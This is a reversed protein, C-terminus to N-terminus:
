WIRFDMELNENRFTPKQRERSLEFVKNEIYKKFENVTLSSHNQLVEQIAFGFASNNGFRSSGTLGYEDAFSSAITMAGTGRRLEPFTEKMLRFVEMNDDFEGSHCANVIFLKQRAPIGDLLNELNDYKISKAAINSTDVDYSYLYYDNNKDMSGHGSYYIIVVDNVTVNRLWKKKVIRNRTVTENIFTDIYVHNYLEGEKTKYFDVFERIDNDTNPLTPINKYQSAGIGIIYLNPKADKQPEYVINITEKYSEAANENLCSVQIKNNGPLLAIELDTKYEKRKKDALDIGQAGFVPVSNVWVNLRNLNVKYDVASIKLEIEYNNTNIPIQDKNTIVVKPIQFDNNFMKETFGNKKLRKEYAKRYLKIISSDSYGIREFVIDPRNYQLDFQEFTYPKNEVRFGVYRNVEKSASYYMEPVKIIFQNDDFNIITCVKKSKIYDWIIITNDSSSSIIHQNNPSFTMSTISSKHGQLTCIKNNNEIDWIHIKGKDENTGIAVLKEDYSVAITNIRYSYNDGAFAKIKQLSDISWLSLQNRHSSSVLLSNKSKLYVINNPITTFKKFKYIKNDRISYLQPGRGSSYFITDGTATFGLTNNYIYDTTLEPRKDLINFESNTIRDHIILKQKNCMLLFTNGNESISLGLESRDDCENKFDLSKIIRDTKLSYINFIRTHRKNYILYDGSESIKFLYSSDEIIFEKSLNSLNLSIIRGNCLYSINSANHFSINSADSTRPILTKLIRKQNISWLKVIETRDGNKKSIYYHSLALINKGKYFVNGTFEGFDDIIMRNKTKLDIVTLSNDTGVFLTDRTKSLCINGANRKFQISDFIIKTKLDLHYVTHKKTFFVTSDMINIHCNRTSLIQKQGSQMNKYGQLIVSASNYSFQIVDYWKSKDTTDIFNKPKLLYKLKRCKISDGFWYKDYNIKESKILMGTNIDWTVFISDGCYSIVRNGNENFDSSSLNYEIPICLEIDQSFVYQCLFFLLFTLLRAKNLLM